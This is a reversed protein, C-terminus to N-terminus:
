QLYKKSASPLGFRSSVIKKQYHKVLFSQQNLPRKFKIRIFKNLLPILGVFKMEHISIVRYYKRCKLSNFFVVNQIIGDCVRILHSILPFSKKDMFM